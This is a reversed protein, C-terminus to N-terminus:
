SLYVNSRCSKALKLVIIQKPEGAKIDCMENIQGLIFMCLMVVYFCVSTISIVCVPVLASTQMVLACKFTESAGDAVMLPLCFALYLGFM